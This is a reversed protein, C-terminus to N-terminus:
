FVEDLDEIISDCVGKEVAEKARVYWEGGINEAIEEATYGTYKVM